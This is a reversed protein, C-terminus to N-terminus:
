PLYTSASMCEFAITKPPGQIRAIGTEIYELLVMVWVPPLM